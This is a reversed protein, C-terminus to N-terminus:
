GPTAPLVWREALLRLYSALDPGYRQRQQGPPFGALPFNLTAAAGQPPPFSAARRPASPNGRAPPAPTCSSRERESRQGGLRSRVVWVCM